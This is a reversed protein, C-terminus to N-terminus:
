RVRPPAASRRRTQEARLWPRPAPTSPLGAARCAGSCNSVNRKDAEFLYLTRGQTDVLIKGLGTNGVGVTSTANTSPAAATSGGTPTSSAQTTSSGSSGGCGSIAVAIAIVAAVGAFLTIRKSRTM